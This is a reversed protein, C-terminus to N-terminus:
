LPRGGSHPPSRLRRLIRRHRRVCDEDIELGEFRDREYDALACLLAELVPPPGAVRQVAERVTLAPTIEAHSWRSVAALIERALPHERARERRTRRRVRLLAILVLAGVAMPAVVWLPIGTAAGLMRWGRRARTLSEMQDNFSYDIVSDDWFRRIRDMVSEFGVLEERVRSSAPTADDVIWGVDDLWWEVWAHAHRELFVVVGDDWAGGQFGGVVRAPIGQSRLLLTFAAAFVECHGRRDNLLFDRVPDDGVRQVESAYTFREMLFRRINEVRSRVDQAPTAAQEALDVLVRDFDSPLALYLARDAQGLPVPPRKVSAPIYGVQTLGGVVEYRM